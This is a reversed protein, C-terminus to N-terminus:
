KWSIGEKHKHKKIRGEYLIYEVETESGVQLATWTSYPVWYELGDSCKVYNCVTAWNATREVEERRKSEVIVVTSISKTVLGTYARFCLLVYVATVSAVIIWRGIGYLSCTAFYTWAIMGVCVSAVLVWVVIKHYGDFQLM